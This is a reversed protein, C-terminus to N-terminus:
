PNEPPPEHRRYGAEVEDRAEQQLRAIYDGLQEDTMDKITRAEVRGNVLAEILLRVHDIVGAIPDNPM